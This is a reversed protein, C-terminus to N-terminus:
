RKVQDRGLGGESQGRGVDKLAVRAGQAVQGLKMM